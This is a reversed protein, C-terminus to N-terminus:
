KKGEQFYPNSGSAHDTQDILAVMEPLVERLRQEVGQKLTVNAMGCGQCGGGLEVYVTNDQIDRLTFFGGHSAVAPNVEEEFLKQVIRMQEDRPRSEVERFGFSYKKSVHRKINLPQQYFTTLGKGIEKRSTGRESEGPRGAFLYESSNSSLGDVRRQWGALGM